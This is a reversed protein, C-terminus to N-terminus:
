DRSPEWPNVLNVGCDAFDAVNRTVLTLHRVYATAAILADALGRTRGSLLIGCRESVALDIPIVHGEFAPKVQAEYWLELIDALAANKRRAMLIGRRLEMLSIVSIFRELGSAGKQWKVVNPDCNGKKRLESVVNTDILLAM